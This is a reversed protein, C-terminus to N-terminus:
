SLLLSRRVDTTGPCFHLAIDQSTMQSCLILGPLISNAGAFHRTKMQRVSPPLQPVPSCPIQTAHFSDIILLSIELCTNTLASRPKIVTLAARSNFTTVYITTWAVCAGDMGFSSDPMREVPHPRVSLWTKRSRSGALKSPHRGNLQPALLLLPSAHLLLPMHVPSKSLSLLSVMALLVLYLSAGSQGTCDRKGGLSALRTRDVTDRVTRDALRSVVDGCPYTWRRTPPFTM